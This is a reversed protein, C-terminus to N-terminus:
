VERVQSGGMKEKEPFEEEMRRAEIEAAIVDAPIDNPTSNVLFFMPVVAACMLGLTVCSTMLWRGQSTLPSSPRVIWDLSDDQNPYEYRVRDSSRGGGLIPFCSWEQRESYM